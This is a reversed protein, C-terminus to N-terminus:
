LLSTTCHKQEALTYYAPPLLAELLITFGSFGCATKKLCFLGTGM